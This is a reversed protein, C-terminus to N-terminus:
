ARGFLALAEAYDDSDEDLEVVQVELQIGLKIVAPVTALEQDSLINGANRRSQLNAVQVIDVLDPGNVSDRQYDQHDSVAAILHEPFDWSKLIAAGVPASLEDIIRNLRQTDELLEPRQDAQLLIPLAGIDHILGALMAEDPQMGGHKSALVHCIAAVDASHEWLDSLHSAALKSPAKFMQELVLSSVLNKVMKLGLRAIATQVKDVPNRGRYLPCNAVRILEASLAVDSLIVDALDSLSADPSQALDNVRLAVDPLMPLVLKGSELEAIIEKYFAEQDTM